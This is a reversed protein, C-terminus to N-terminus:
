NKYMNLPFITVRPSKSGPSSEYPAYGAFFFYKILDSMIPFYKIYTKM